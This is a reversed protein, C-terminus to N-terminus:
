NLLYHLRGCKTPAREAESGLRTGSGGEAAGARM